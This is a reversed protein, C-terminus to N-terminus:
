SLINGIYCIASKNIAPLLYLKDNEVINKILTLLFTWVLFHRPYKKPVDIIQVNSYSM